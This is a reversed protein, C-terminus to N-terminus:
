PNNSRVSGKRTEAASRLNVRQAKRYNWFIFALAPLLVFVLVYLAREHNEQEATRKYGNSGRSRGVCESVANLDQPQPHNQRKVSHKTGM